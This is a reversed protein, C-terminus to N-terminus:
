GSRRARPDDRRLPPPDRRRPREAVPARRVRARRHAPHAARPLRHRRARVQAAGGRARRHDRAHRHHPRDARRGLRAGAGHPARLRARRRRARVPRADHVGPRGQDGALHRSLFRSRDPPLAIATGDLMTTYEPVRFVDARLHEIVSNALLTRGDLDVLRIGDVSADLLAGNIDILRELTAQHAMREADAVSASRSTTGPRTSCGPRPTPRRRGPSGCTPATRAASAITSPSSRSGAPSDQSRPWRRRATTPISSISSRGRWCSRPRLASSASGRRTSASSTAMTSGPSASCSSRSRSSAISSRRVRLPRMSWASPCRLRYVWPRPTCASSTHM